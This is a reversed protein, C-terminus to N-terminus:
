DHDSVDVVNSNFTVRAVNLGLGLCNRGDTISAHHMNDGAQGINTTYSFICMSINQVYMLTLVASIYPLQPLISIAELMLYITIAIDTEVGQLGKHM